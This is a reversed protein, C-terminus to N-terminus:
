PRSTASVRISHDGLRGVSSCRTARKISLSHLSSRSRRYSSWNNCRRMSCTCSCFLMTGTLPFSLASPGSNTPALVVSWTSCSRALCPSYPLTMAEHTGNQPANVIAGAQILVDDVLLAHDPSVLLDRWPMNPGLAGAKVRISLVREKDGSVTSVTQRGIWSIPMIQGDSCLVM